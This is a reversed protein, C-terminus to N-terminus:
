FGLSVEEDIACDSHITITKNNDDLNTITYDFGYGVPKEELNIKDNQHKDIYSIFDDANKFCDPIIDEDWSLMEKVWKKDVNKWSKTHKINTSFYLAFFLGLIKKNKEFRGENINGTLFQTLTIM